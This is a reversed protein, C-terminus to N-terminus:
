GGLNRRSILEKVATSVTGNRKESRKRHFVYNQTDYFVIGCAVLAYMFQTNLQVYKIQPKKPPHIYAILLRRNQSGTLTRATLLHKIRYKGIM